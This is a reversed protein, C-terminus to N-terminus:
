KVLIYDSLSPCKDSQNSWFYNTQEPSCYSCFPIPEILKFITEWGNSIEDILIYDNELVSYHTNFTNNLISILLPYHCKSIKGERLFRCFKGSCNKTSCPYDKNLSLRKRFNSVTTSNDIKDNIYYHINYKQLINTIETIVIQTKPYLTISLIINNDAFARLITSNMKVISLGNTVIILRSNPLRTRIGYVLSDINPHLLPEGGLLRLCYINFIRTLSDLDQFLRLEDAYQKPAVNSFHSCGNCNLNCHDVINTELYSLFPKTLDYEIMFEMLDTLSNPEYFFLEENVIVVKSIGHKKLFVITNELFMGTKAIIFNENRYNEINLDELFLIDMGAKEPTRNNVVLDISYGFKQFYEVTLKSLDGTGIIINM